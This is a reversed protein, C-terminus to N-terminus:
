KEPFVCLSNLRRSHINMKGLVESTVMSGSETRRNYRIRKILSQILGLLFVNALYPLPVGLRAVAPKGERFCFAERARPSGDQRCWPGGRVRPWGSDWRGRGHRARGETVRGPGTGPSDGHQQKPKFAGWFSLRESNVSDDMKGGRRCNEGPTM